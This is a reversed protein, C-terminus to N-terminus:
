TNKASERKLAQLPLCNLLVAAPQLFSSSFIRLIKLGYNTKYPEM